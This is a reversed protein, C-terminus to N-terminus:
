MASTMTVVLNFSFSAVDTLNSSVALTFVLPRVENVKIASNDYDWTLTFYQSYSQSLLNGAADHFVWNSPSFTMTLPVTGENRFYITSSNRAQGPVIMSWDINDLVQRSVQTPYSRYLGLQLTSVPESTSSPASTVTVPSGNPSPNPTAPPTPVVLAPSPPVEVPQAAYPQLTPQSTLAMRGSMFDDVYHTSVAIVIIMIVVLFDRNSPMYRFKQIQAGGKRFLRL